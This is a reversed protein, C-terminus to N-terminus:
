NSEHACHSERFTLLEEWTPMGAQAGAKTVAMAGACVALRAADLEKMGRALAAAFAANFTDGAATTDVVQVSCSPVHTWEGGSLLYCGDAGAKHVVCGAGRQCLVEVRERTNAFDPLDRTLIRLESENPTLYDVANLVEEPLYQAPAPDLIVTKGMEHLKKVIHFTTHADTELQLLVIDVEQAEQLISGVFGDDWGSNAGPVVIITNEGTESVSIAAIGTSQNPLRRVSSANVGNQRFVELYADGFADQGVCGVMSPSCGLKGLAVAQNAGKGGPVTSFASGILTEGPIPFRPTQTVMDMNISGIVMIKRM